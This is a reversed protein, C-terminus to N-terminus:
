ATEKTKEIVHKMGKDTMLFDIDCQWNEHGVSKGGRGMLFDNDRARNFFDGVWAIAEDHTTARRSGDTKESTLVFNWFKSIAKKRSEPMLRATPMEPLIEHYLNVISSTPCTPKKPQSPVSGKPEIDGTVTVTGSQSLTQLPNAFPELKPEVSLGLIDASVRMYELKWSCEAPISNAIKVASKRQNPNELPNWEYHKHLVVWKTINCRTAFGKAFLEAFGKSVREADWQMDECVYGDPLRFVGAITGHPNTLLYFALMRGDESLSRITDSTWFSTHVKGYDRM